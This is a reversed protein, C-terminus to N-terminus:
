SKRDADFKSAGLGEDVVHARDTRNKRAHEGTDIHKKSSADAHQGSTGHQAGEPHKSQAHAM